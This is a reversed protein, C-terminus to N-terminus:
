GQGVVKVMAPRIVRQKWRYGTRLIESVRASGDGPEHMVADHCTPDFDVDAANIPELGEKFLVDFLSNSIQTLSSELETNDKAHALALEINDLAPLLRTILAEVKQDGVEQSQKVVRKRYNDFDAATQQLAKLYDDRELTLKEIESKESGEGSEADSDGLILESLDDPVEPNDNEFEDSM